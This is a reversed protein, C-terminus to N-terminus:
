IFTITSGNTHFGLAEKDHSCGLAAAALQSPTAIQLDIERGVAKECKKINTNLMNMAHDSDVILIDINSDVADLLIAGSKKYAIDPAINVIDSGCAKISREFSSFNGGIARIFAMIKNRTADDGRPGTYFAINFHEFPYQLDKSITEFSIHRDIFDLESETEVIEQMINYREILLLTAPHLSAEEETDFFRDKLTNFLETLPQPMKSNALRRDELMAKIVDIAPTIDESPYSNNEYEYLWLGNEKDAIIDLIADEHDNEERQLLRLALLFLADGYYDQNYQLTESAYYTRYLTRYYKLDDANCYPALLAYKDMFDHDNFRLDKTARYLSAPEFTLQTGFVAVLEKIKLRADVLKNNVCVLTKQKPYEFSPNRHQIIKLIDKLSQKEEAICTYQKYHPLYDTSADFFFLEIHLKHNM